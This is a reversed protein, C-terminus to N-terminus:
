FTESKGRMNIMYRLNLLLLLPSPIAMYWIDKKTADELYASFYDTVDLLDDGRYEYFDVQTYDDCNIRNRDLNKDLAM